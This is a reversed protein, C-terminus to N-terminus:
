IELYQIATLYKTSPKPETPPTPKYINLNFNPINFRYLIAFYTAFDIELKYTISNLSSYYLFYQETTENYEKSTKYTTHDSIIYTPFNPHHINLPSNQNYPTFNM